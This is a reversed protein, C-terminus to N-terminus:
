HRGKRRSGKIKCGLVVVFLIGSVTLGVVWLTMNSLDRTNPTTSDKKGTEKGQTNVVSEEENKEAIKFNTEVEGDDYVFTIKHEGISLTNLYDAKLTVITSGEKATYNSKDVEKGDVKIGEFKNFKGNARITIEKSDQEQHSSGAGDLIEYVFKPTTKKTRSLEKNCETCYIVEEYSGEKEVTSEIENEIVIAGETHGKAPETKPTSSIKANCKTCYVVENYTGKETCTAPVENEKVPTGETHGTAKDIKNTRSIEAQCKTCKIVEDHSGDKTCTAPVINENVPTGATHGTAKDTKNTRSMERDCVSCYVVEDHSGDTTCTAPVINENVPTGATHKAINVKTGCGCDKWHNTEDSSWDAASVDHPTMEIEKPTTSIKANCITCYVVENYSGKATCTAPVVNERIPTGATHGKAPETKPTSSIKTNCITCYVVENYTGEETCTAPVHNEKVPTGATHGTAKDIKNTRSMEYGCVSCYVVEDHNGDTTCTAAHENEKVPTSAKHEEEDVITGCGCVKWHNTSDKGYEGEGIHNIKTDAIGCRSCENWHQTENTRPVSFDHGLANIKEAEVTTETIGDAKFVKKCDDCIKYENNGAVTCTSSKAPVTTKNLHKCVAKTVTVTCTATKGNATTATVTATGEAVATVIGTSSVTAVNKDSSSWTVTKNTADTPIYNVTLTDTSGVEISTTTKNLTISDVPLIVNVNASNSTYEVYKTNFEDDLYSFETDSLSFTTKGLNADSKAVFTATFLNGNYSSNLKITGDASGVWNFTVCDEAESIDCSSYFEGQSPLEKTATKVEFVDTDFNLTTSFAEITSISNVNLKVAISFEDGRKVETTSPVIQLDVKGSELAFSLSPIFLNFILVLLTIFSIIKISKM